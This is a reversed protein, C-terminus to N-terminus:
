STPKNTQQQNRGERAAARYFSSLVTYFAAPRAIRCDPPLNQLRCGRRRQLRDRNIKDHRPCQLAPALVGQRSSDGATQRQRERTEAYGIISGGGDIASQPKQQGTKQRRALTEFLRVTQSVAQQRSYATQQRSDAIQQRSDATQQRSDAVM